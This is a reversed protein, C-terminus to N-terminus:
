PCPWPPQAVALSTPGAADSAAIEAASMAHNYLRVEELNFTGMNDTASQSRAIWDNVDAISQPPVTRRSNLGITRRFYWALEGGNMGYAGANDSFTLVFHYIVLNNDVPAYSNAQYVPGGGTM